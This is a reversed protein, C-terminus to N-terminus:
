GNEKRCRAARASSNGSLAARGAITIFVISDGTATPLPSVPVADVEEEEEEEEEEENDDNEEVKEADPEEEAVPLVVAM